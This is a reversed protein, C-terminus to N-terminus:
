GKRTLAALWTESSALETLMLSVSFVVSPLSHFYKQTNGTVRASVGQCPQFVLFQLGHQESMTHHLLVSNMKMLGELPKMRYATSVLPRWPCAQHGCVRKESFPPSCLTVLGEGPVRAMGRLWKHTTREYNSSLRQLVYASSVPPISEPHITRPDGMSKSAVRVWARYTAWYSTPEGSCVQISDYKWLSELAPFTRGPRLGKGCLYSM